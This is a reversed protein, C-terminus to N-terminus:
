LRKHWQSCASVIEAQARQHAEIGLTYPDAIETGSWHGLLFAKGRASPDLDFVYHLHHKELCLILDAWRTIHPVLQRARHEDLSVGIDRALEATISEAPHGILAGIGASGVEASKGAQHLARRLIAEALPSRCINGTCVTLIRQFM